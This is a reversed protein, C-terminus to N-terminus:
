TSGPVQAGFRKCIQLALTTTIIPTFLGRERDRGVDPLLLLRLIGGGPGLEAGGRGGLLQVVRLLVRVGGVYFGQLGM